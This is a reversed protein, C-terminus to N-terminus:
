NDKFEICLVDIQWICWSQELLISPEVLTNIPAILVNFCWSSQLIYIILEFIHEKIYENAILVEATFM